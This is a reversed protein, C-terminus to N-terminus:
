PQCSGSLIPSIDFIEIAGVDYVLTACAASAFKQLSAAPFAQTYEGAHPEWPSFYWGPTPPVGKTMRWDVLLYRIGVSRIKNVVTGNMKQAFFIPWADEQAVPNQEGYTALAFANVFNAAFPQHTGLHARAWESASIVDARVSWPYGEARPSEPLRQYFATGITVNGVFIATMFGTALATRPWEVRRPRPLAGDHSRRRSHAEKLLLGVVCALGVFVYETSRVSIVVANPALRPLLTLPYVAAVGVAVVMPAYDRRGWARRLALPLAGLLLGVAAVGAVLEWAPVAYGGSEYLRRPPIHGQLLSVVQHLAPIINQSFLYSAAPPAVLFLWALSTVGAFVTMFALRRQAVRYSHGPRAARQHIVREALWWTGLLATLAVGAVHHTIIVAIIGMVTVVQAL